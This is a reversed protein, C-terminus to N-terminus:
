SSTGSRASLQAASAEDLVRERFIPVVDGDSVASLQDLLHHSDAPATAAVPTTPARDFPPQYGDLGAATRQWALRLADDGVEGAIADAVAWAAAYAYQEQAASAEGAGWSVLPFADARRAQTAREPDFPLEVELDTAVRAAAHSAFGERM